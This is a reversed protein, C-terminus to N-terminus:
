RAILMGIVVGLGLAYLTARVPEDEGARRLREARTRSWARAMMADERMAEHVPRPGFARAEGEVLITDAERELELSAVDAEGDIDDPSIPGTYRDTM